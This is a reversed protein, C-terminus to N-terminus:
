NRHGCGQTAGAGRPQQVMKDMMKCSINCNGRKAKIKLNKQFVGKGGGSDELAFNVHSRKGDPGSSHRTRKRYSHAPLLGVGQEM